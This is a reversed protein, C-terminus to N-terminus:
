FNYDYYKYPERDLWFRTGSTGGPLHFAGDKHRRVIAVEGDPDSQITCKQACNNFHGFFGGPVFSEQLKEAAEDTITSKMHRVKLCRDTIIELVEWPEWDTYFHQNAFIPGDSALLAYHEAERKARRLESDTRDFVEWAADNNYDKAWEKRADEYKNTLVEVLESLENAKAIFEKKTKM